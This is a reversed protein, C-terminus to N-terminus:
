RSLTFLLFFSAALRIVKFRAASHFVRSKVPKYYSKSYSIM